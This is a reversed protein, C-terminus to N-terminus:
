AYLFFVSKYHVFANQSLLNSYKQNYMRRHGSIELVVEQKICDAVMELRWFVLELDVITHCDEVCCFHSDLRAVFDIDQFYDVLRGCM